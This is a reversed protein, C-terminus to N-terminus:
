AFAKARAPVQESRNRDQLPAARHHEKCHCSDYAAIAAIRKRCGYEPRAIEIACPTRFQEAGRGNHDSRVHMNGAVHENASTRRQPESVARFASGTVRMRCCM